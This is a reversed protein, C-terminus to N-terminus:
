SNNFNTDDLKEALSFSRELSEYDLVANKLIIGEIKHSVPSLCFCKMTEFKRESRKAKSEALILEVTSKIISHDKVWLVWRETGFAGGEQALYDAIDLAKPFTPTNGIIIM